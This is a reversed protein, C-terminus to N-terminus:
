NMCSATANATAEPSAQRPVRLRESVRSPATAANATPKTDKKDIVRLPMRRM